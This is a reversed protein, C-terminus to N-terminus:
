KQLTVTTKSTQEMSGEGGPSSFNGKATGSLSSEVVMGTKVNVKMEGKQEGKMEGAGGAPKTSTASIVDILAIGNAISKVTFTNNTNSSSADTSYSLVNNWTDGIKVEKNPYIKFSQEFSNKMADETFASTILMNAMQPNNGSATALVKQFADKIAGYGNFSKVRGDPLVVVQLTKGVICDFLSIGIKEFDTTSATKNKTDIKFSLMPSSSTMAMEKYIYDVSIEANNNERVNMETVVEVLFNMNMSQGGFNMQTKQDSVTRYAYKEGKAPNFSLKVQAQALMGAFIFAACLLFIKVKM